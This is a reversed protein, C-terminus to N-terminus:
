QGVDGTAASATGNSNKPRLHPPKARSALEVLSTLVGSQVEEQNQNILSKKWTVKGASRGGSALQLVETVVSLTDGIHVPRVFKWQDVSVLALTQVSPATTSLGAAWALGMMGHMLPQKFRSKSAYDHDVHARDYDGTMGAFIVVDAETVTRRHSTWTQGVSLDEFYYSPNMGVTGLFINVFRM